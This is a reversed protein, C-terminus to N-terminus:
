KMKAMMASVPPQNDNSPVSHRFASWSRGELFDVDRIQHRIRRVRAFVIRAVDAHNAIRQLFHACPAGDADVGRATRQIIRTRFVQGVYLLDGATVTQLASLEHRIGVSADQGGPGTFTAGSM